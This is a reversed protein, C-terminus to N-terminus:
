RLQRGSLLSGVAPLIAGAGVTVLDSVELLLGAGIGLVGCLVFASIALPPQVLAFVAGLAYIVVLVLGVGEAATTGTEDKEVFRRYSSAAVWVMTVMSLLIAVAFAVLRM